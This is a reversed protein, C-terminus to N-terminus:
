PRAAHAELEQLKKEIEAAAAKHQKHESVVRFLTAIGEHKHAHGPRHELAHVFFALLVLAALVVVALVSVLVYEATTNEIGTNTTTSDATRNSYVIQVSSSLEASSVAGGAKNVAAALAGTDLGRMAAALKQELPAASALTGELKYAMRLRTTVAGVTAGASAIDPFAIFTKAAVSKAAAGLAAVFAANAADPAVDREASVDCSLSQRCRVQEPRVALATAMASALVVVARADTLNAVGAITLPITQSYSVAGGWSAGGLPVQQKFAVAAQSRTCGGSLAVSVGVTSVIPRCFSVNAPSWTASNPPCARSSTGVFDGHCPLVVVTSQAAAPWGLAPEAVCEMELCLRGDGFHSAFCSCSHKGAATRTCKALKSCLSQGPAVCPDDMACSGGEFNGSKGCTHVGSKVHGPQCEFACTQQMLGKCGSGAKSGKVSSDKCAKPACGGGSWKGSPLCAHEGSRVYGPLCTYACKEGTTGSCAAAARNSNAVAGGSSCSNGKCSGGAFTSNALCVHKGTVEFGAECTYKCEEFSVGTCATAASANGSNLVISPVCATLACSGGGFKGSPLCTHAGGHTYGADCKYACDFGTVGNCESGKVKGARDSFQVAYVACTNAVCAGGAFKVGGCVHKGASSYGPLCTYSCVDGTSGKCLDGGKATVVRDSNPVSLGEGCQMATCNTAGTLSRFGSACATCATAASKDLDATNEACLTCSPVKGAGEDGTSTVLLQTGGPCVECKTNSKSTKKGIFRSGKPCPTVPKCGRNKFPTPAVDEFEAWGCAAWPLCKGTAAGLFFGDSCECFNRGAVGGFRCSFGAACNGRGALCPDYLECAGGGWAGAAGCIRLGVIRYGTPCDYACLDGEVASAWCSYKSRAPAATSSCAKAAKCSEGDGSAQCSTGRACTGRSRFAPACKGQAVSDEAAFGARSVLTGGGSESKAWGYCAYKGSIANLMYSVGLCGAGKTVCAARCAAVDATWGLSDEPSSYSNAAISSWCRGSALAAGAACASSTSRVLACLVLARLSCRRSCRRSALM